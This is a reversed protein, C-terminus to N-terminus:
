DIKRRIVANLYTEKSVNDEFNSLSSTATKTKIFGHTEIFQEM